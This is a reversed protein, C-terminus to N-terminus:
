KTKFRASEPVNQFKLEIPLCRKECTRDRMVKPVWPTIDQPIDLKWINEKEKRM